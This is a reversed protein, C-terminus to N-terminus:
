EPRSAPATTTPGASELAGPLYFPRGERIQQILRAIPQARLEAQRSPAYGLAQLDLQPPEQGHCRVCAAPKPLVDAHVRRLLDKGEPGAATVSLYRRTLDAMRDREQQARGQDLRPAIKAQYEGLAREPLEETLRAVATRWVPSGPESTDLVLMYHEIMGDDPVTDRTERLLALILPQQGAPDQDTKAKNVELENILRLIAPPEQPAGTVTSVWVTQIGGAEIRAHCMQCAMFTSHLNAFARTDKHKGHALPAHCGSVTCNNLPDPQFWRDVLHYRPLPPRPAPASIGRVNAERLADASLTSEWRRISPPVESPSFVYRVMYAGALYTVWIVLILLALAWLRAVLNRVRALAGRTAHGGTQAPANSM